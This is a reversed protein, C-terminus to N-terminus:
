KAASRIAELSGERNIWSCEGPQAEVPNKAIDWIGPVSSLGRDAQHRYWSTDPGSTGAMNCLVGRMREYGTALSRILADSREREAAVAAAVAAEILPSTGCMIELLQQSLEDGCSGYNAIHCDTSAGMYFEGGKYGTFEKGLASKAEALMESISTNDKPEFALDNYHGRYSHASGEGWGKPIIKEQDQSELFNIIEKLTM